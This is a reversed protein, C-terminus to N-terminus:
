VKEFEEGALGDAVKDAGEDAGKDAEGDAASFLVEDKGDETERWNSVSAGM